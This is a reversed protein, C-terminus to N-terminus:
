NLFLAIFRVENSNKQAEAPDCVAMAYKRTWKRAEIDFKERNNRYLDAAEPVLFDDTNPDSLLSVISLTFSKLGLVPSYNNQLIDLCIEGKSSINPHFVKTKMTIKPPEFPYADPCNIDLVFVGNEYPTNVPGRIKVELAKLSTSPDVPSCSLIEEPADMLEKVETRLRGYLGRSSRENEM